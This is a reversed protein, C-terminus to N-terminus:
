GMRWGLEEVAEALLPCRGAEMDYTGM